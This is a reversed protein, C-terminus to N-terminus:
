YVVFGIKDLERIYKRKVQNRLFSINLACVGLWLVIVVYVMFFFNGVVGNVLNQGKKFKIGFGVVNNM